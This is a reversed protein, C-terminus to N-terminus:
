YLHVRPRAAFTTRASTTCHQFSQRARARTSRDAAAGSESMWAPVDCNAVMVVLADEHRASHADPHGGLRTHM